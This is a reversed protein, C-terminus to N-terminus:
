IIQYERLHHGYSKEDFVRFALADLALSDNSVFIGAGEVDRGGYERQQAGVLIRRADIINLDPSLTMNLDSVAQNLNDKGGLKHFRLKEFDAILGMLNKAAGTYGADINHKLVGINLLFDSEAVEEPLFINGLINGKAHVKVLYADHVDLLKAGYKEIDRLMYLVREKDFFISPGVALLVKGTGNIKRMTYLTKLLFEPDTTTPYPEDCVYNPVVLIKEADRISSNYLSDELLGLYEEMSSVRKMFTERSAKQKLNRAEGMLSEYNKVRHYLMSMRSLAEIVYDEGSAIDDRLVDRDIQPSFYSEIRSVIKSLDIDYESNWGLTTTVPDIPHLDWSQEMRKSIENEVYGGKWYSGSAFIKLNKM